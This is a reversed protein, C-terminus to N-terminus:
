DANLLRGASRGVRIYDSPNAIVTGGVDHGAFREQGVVADGAVNGAAPGGLHMVVRQDHVELLRSGLDGAVTAAGM